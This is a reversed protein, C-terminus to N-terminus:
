EHDVNTLVKVGASNSSPVVAGVFPGMMIPDPYRRRIEFVTWEAQKYVEQMHSAAGHIDGFFEKLRAYVHWYAINWWDHCEPLPLFERNSLNELFAEGLPVRNVQGLWREYDDCCHSITSNGHFRADHGRVMARLKRMEPGLKKDVELVKGLGERTQRVYNVTPEEEHFKKAYDQQREMARGQALIEDLNVKEPNEM